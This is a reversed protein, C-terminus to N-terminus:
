HVVRIQSEVLETVQVQVHPLPHLELAQLPIFHNYYNTNPGVELSIFSILSSVQSSLKHKFIEGFTGNNKFSTKKRKSFYRFPYKFFFSVTLRTKLFHSLCQIQFFNIKQFSKQYHNEFNSNTYEM